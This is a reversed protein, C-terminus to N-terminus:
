VDLAIRVIGYPDNSAKGSMGAVVSDASHFAELETIFIICQISSYAIDLKSGSCLRKMRKM